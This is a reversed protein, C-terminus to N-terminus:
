GQSPVQAPDLLAPDLEMFVDAREYELQPRRDEPLHRFGLSEYLHVANALKKNSGLYVSRAGLERARVLAAELLKRGLGRGRQAPDVAMKTLEFRGDGEPLLAVCGLVRGTGDDRAVLVDGGPRVIVGFPDDMVEEDHPELSFYRVIWEENLARFAAAEEKTRLSGVTASAPAAATDETCTM